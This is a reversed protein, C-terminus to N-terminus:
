LFLFYQSRVLLWDGLPRDTEVPGGAKLWANFGGEIHVVPKLGMDQATKAGLVSRLGSACYFVYTKDQNFVEKFVPSQPDIMMEIMGRPCFQAGSIKGSKNLERSDRIDVFVHQESEVIALAEDVSIAEVEQNAEAILEKASKIISQAM